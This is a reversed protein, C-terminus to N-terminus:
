SNQLHALHIMSRRKAIRKLCKGLDEMSMFDGEDVCLSRYFISDNYIDAFYTLIKLIKHMTGTSIEKM